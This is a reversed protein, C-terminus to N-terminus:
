TCRLFRLLALLRGYPSASGNSPSNPAPMQAGNKGEAASPHRLFWLPDKGDGGAKTAKAANAVDSPAARKDDPALLESLDDDLAAGNAPETLAGALKASLMGDDDASAPAKPEPTAPAPMPEARREGGSADSGGGSLTKRISALIEELSKAGAADLKSM